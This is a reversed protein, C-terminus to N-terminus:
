EEAVINKVPDPEDDLRCLQNEYSKKEDAAYSRLRLMLEDFDV